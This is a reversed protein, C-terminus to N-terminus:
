PGHHQRRLQRRRLLSLGDRASEDAVLAPRFVDRLGHQREDVVVEHGARTQGDIAPPRHVRWLLIAFGVRPTALFPYAQNQPSAAEPSRLTGALSRSTGDPLDRHNAMWIGPAAERQDLQEDNDGDDGHQD